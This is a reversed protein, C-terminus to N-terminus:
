SATLGLYYVNTIFYQPNHLDFIVCILKIKPDTLLMQDLQDYNCTVVKSFTLNQDPNLASATM